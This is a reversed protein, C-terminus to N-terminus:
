TRLNDARLIDLLYNKGGTSKVLYKKNENNKLEMIINTVYM